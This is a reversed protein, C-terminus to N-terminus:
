QKRVRRGAAPTTSNDVSIIRGRGGPARSAAAASSATAASSAPTHHFKVKNVRIVVFPKSDATQIYFDSVNHLMHDRHKGRFTAYWHNGSLLGIYGKISIAYDSSHENIAVSLTKIPLEMMAAQVLTALVYPRDQEKVHMEEQLVRQAWQTALSRADIGQTEQVLLQVDSDEDSSPDM